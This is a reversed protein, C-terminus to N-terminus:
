LGSGTTHFLQASHASGRPQLILLCPTYKKKNNNREQQLHLHKRFASKKKKALVQGPHTALLSCKSKSGNVGSVHWKGVGTVKSM